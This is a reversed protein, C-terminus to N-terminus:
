QCEKGAGALTISCRRLMCVVTEGLIGSEYLTNVTLALLYEGDLIGPLLSVHQLPQRRTLRETAHDHKRGRM